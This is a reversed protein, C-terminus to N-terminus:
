LLVTTTQQTQTMHLKNIQKKESSKGCSTLPTNANHSTFQKIQFTKNTNFSYEAFSKQFVTM